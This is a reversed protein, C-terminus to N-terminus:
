FAGSCILKRLLLALTKLILFVKPLDLVSTEAYEENTKFATLVCVIVPVIAVVSAFILSLYKLVSFLVSGAKMKATM